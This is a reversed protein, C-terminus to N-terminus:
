LESFYYWQALSSPSGAEALYFDSGEVISSLLMLFYVYMCVDEATHTLTFWRAVPYTFSIFTKIEGVLQICSTCLKWIPSEQKLVLYWFM